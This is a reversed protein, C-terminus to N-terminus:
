VLRGQLRVAIVAPWFDRERHGRLQYRRGDDRVVAVQVRVARRGPGVADPRVAGPGVAWVAARQPLRIVPVVDDALTGVLVAEVLRGGVSGRRIRGRCRTRM